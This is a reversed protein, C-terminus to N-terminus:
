EMKRLKLKNGIKDTVIYLIIGYVLNAIISSYIGRILVDVDFGHYGVICLLIYSIIDFIVIIVVNLANINFSNMNIYNYIIIISLATLLFAFTNLFLTDTYIIDYFFGIIGASLLFKNNNCNFYPYLIVLSTVLFMPILLSNNSILNTFIGEFLFSFILTIIIM